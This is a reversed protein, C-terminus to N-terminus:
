LQFHYLNSRVGANLQLLRRQFVEVGVEVVALHASILPAFHAKELVVLLLVRNLDFKLLLLLGFPKQMLIDFQATVLLFASLTADEKDILSLLM